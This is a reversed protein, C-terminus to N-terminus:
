DRARHDPGGRPRTVIRVRPMDNRLEAIAADTVRTNQLDLIRLKTLGRLHLLGAASVETDRLNLVSLKTLPSLHALGADTVQYISYSSDALYSSGCLNKKKEAHPRGAFPM